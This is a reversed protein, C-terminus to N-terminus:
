AAPSSFCDIIADTWANLNDALSIDTKGLRVVILDHAPVCIIRQAQYGQASFQGPHRIWWQAGYQTGDPDVAQPSRAYDVWGEPLMRTGDWVGDRLYLLGFRAFDRATAFLYSSGVFTGAVDFRPEASRMGIPALLRDTFWNQFASDRGVHDGVMRALINTTGSSYNFVAGPTHLLQQSAAYRAMDLHAEDGWLMELCHSTDDDVYDENFELGSVMRLLQDTTIAARPDGPDQWEPVAAAAHIDLLGDAVLLGVAAQTFSKAMSWSILTEDPGATPGYREAIIQGRHVVVTALSVGLHDEPQPTRFAEDLLADLRAADVGAPPDAVPWAETPWPVGDPQDPLPDLAIQHDSEFVTM